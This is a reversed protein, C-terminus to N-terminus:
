SLIQCMPVDGEEGERGGPHWLLLLLKNRRLCKSQVNEVMIKEEPLVIGQGQKLLGALKHFHPQDVLLLLSTPKTSSLRLQYMDASAPVQPALPKGM